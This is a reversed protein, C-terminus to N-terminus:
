KKDELTKLYIGPFVLNLSVEQVLHDKFTGELGFWEIIRLETICIRLQSTFSKVMFGKLRLKM